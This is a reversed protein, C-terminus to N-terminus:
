NPPACRKSMDGGRAIQSVCVLVKHHSGSSLFKPSPLSCSCSRVSSSTPTCIKPAIERGQRCIFDSQDCTLKARVTKNKKMFDEQSSKLPSGCRRRFSSPRFFLGSYNYRYFRFLYLINLDLDFYRCM